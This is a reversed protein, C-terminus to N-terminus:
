KLNTCSIPVDPHGKKCLPLNPTSEEIASSPLLLEPHFIEPVGLMYVRLKEHTMM